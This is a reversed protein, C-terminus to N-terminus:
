LKEQRLLHDFKLLLLQKVHKVGHGVFHENARKLVLVLELWFGHVVVSLHSLKEASAENFFRRLLILALTLLFANRLFSIEESVGGKFLSHERLPLNIRWNVHAIFWLGQGTM